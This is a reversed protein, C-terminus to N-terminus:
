VMVQSMLRRVERRRRCHVVLRRITLLNDINLLLRNLYATGDYANNDNYRAGMNISIVAHDSDGMQFDLAYATSDTTLSFSQAALMQGDSEARVYTKLGGSEGTMELWLRISSQPAAYLVFKLLHQNRVMTGSSNEHLANTERYQICPKGDSNTMVSYASITTNVTTTYLSFPTTGIYPTQSHPLGTLGALDFEFSTIRNDSNTVAAAEAKVFVPAFDALCIIVLAVVSLITIWRKM